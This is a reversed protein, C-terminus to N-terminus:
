ELIRILSSCNSHFLAPFMFALHILFLSPEKRRTNLWQHIAGEVGGESQQLAKVREDDQNAAAWEKYCRAPADSMFWELSEISGIHAAVLPAPNVQQIVEQNRAGGAQAWDARKKGGVNLGQYYQPKKTFAVGSNKILENLSLGVGAAKILEALMHTRGLAICNHFVDEAIAFPVPNEEHEAFHANQEASLRLIFSLLTMDDTIVAFKLLSFMQRRDEGRNPDKSAGEFRFPKCPWGIMTVPHVTGKVVDSVAGIVDVTFVDDVLERYVNIEDSDPESNYDSDDPDLNWRYKRVPELEPQYQALAIDIIIKALKLHGRGIALSFPSFGNSDKVAIALPKRPKESGWPGLTMKKVTDVDNQYM